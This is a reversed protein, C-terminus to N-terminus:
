NDDNSEREDDDGGQDDEKRQRGLGRDPQDGQHHSEVSQARAQGQRADVSFPFRYM